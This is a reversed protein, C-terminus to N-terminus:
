ELDKALQEDKVDNGEDKFQLNYLRFYEGKKALLAEHNGEEVIRGHVLAVIRDANRITSLRHAIILTTRGKM